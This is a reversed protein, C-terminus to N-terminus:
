GQNLLRELLDRVGVTDAAQRLYPVDLHNDLLRILRTVDDWQRESTEHTLRYWELKSVISDEATAISVKLTKETGLTEETARRMSDIDFPRGRSVFVDVKFSTPLHILNFCSKGRVANEVATSSVYFDQSFSSVFPVSQAETMDCVVDVDMTSRTAGHFSSAISGGIFYRIGLERFAQIVPGLADILDDPQTM